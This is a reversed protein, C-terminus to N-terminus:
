RFRLIKGASNGLLVDEGTVAVPTTFATGDRHEWRVDLKRAGLAILVDLSGERGAKQRMTLYATEGAVVPGSLVQGDVLVSAEAVGDRLGISSLRGDSALVLVTDTLAVIRDVSTDGPLRHEWLVRHTTPEVALLRGDETGVLIAGQAPVLSSAIRAPIRFRDLVGGEVVDVALVDGNRTALRVMRGDVVPEDTPAETLQMSWIPEGGVNADMAVLRNREDVFLVRSSHVIPTFIPRASPRQSWVVRGTALSQACLVGERSLYVALAPSLTVRGDLEDLGPFQRVHRPQGGNTAAIAVRGNRLGVALVGNNAVLEGRAPEEFELTAHPQANMVLSVTALKRADVQVKANDFRDLQLEISEPTGSACLVICPTRLPDASGTERQFVPRGDRLVLAGPPSSVLQVPLRASRAADSMEYQEVLEVWLRRAADWDGGRLEEWARRDLEFAKGLYDKLRHLNKDLGVEQAWKRDGAEGVQDVMDRVSEVQRLAKDLENQRVLSQFVEWAMKYNQRTRDDDLQKSRRAAELQEKHKSRLSEIHAVEVEVERGILTLPFEKVFAGYQEVAHDFDKAELLKEVRAQVGVLQGRAHQEYFWWTGGLAALVVGLVCLAVISRRRSRRREDLVYLSRIRESVDKRSRDLMLIKQLFKIAELPKHAQVLDEAISEYLEIVRKTDGAKTHVNVLSKKLEVDFPNDRLLRELISRVREIEGIELYLDVLEKGTRTPDFDKVGLDSRGVTLEVLRERAALDTPLLSVARQLIEVAHKVDEAGAHFEADCKHHYAALEYEQLSEYVRAAHQHADPIGVGQAIAKEYLNIADQQRGEAACDHATQVLEEAPVPEVLGEDLLVALGKYVLFAPLGTVEILRSVNRKGDVLDYLALASDELDFINTPMGRPRFIELAGAVREQIFSWEDIRRAAEMILTDISFCFRSDVQGDRGEVASAGEYFEFHADTWFFLDFIEEEMESRLMSMLEAESLYGGAILADALGVHHTASHRRADQAAAETVHGSRTAQLLVKDLLVHEDFYLCVGRPEFYLARWGRPSQICLMGVKQNLALMQFVQALDVSALDGKLAM